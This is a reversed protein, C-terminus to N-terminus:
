SAGRSVLRLTPKSNVHGLTLRTSLRLFMQKNAEGMKRYAIVLKIEDLALSELHPPQADNGAVVRPTQQKRKM